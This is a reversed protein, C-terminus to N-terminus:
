SRLCSTADMMHEANACSQLKGAISYWRLGGQRAARIADAIAQHFNEALQAVSPKPNPKRFFM